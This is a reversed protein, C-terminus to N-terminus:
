RVKRDEREGGKGGRDLHRVHAHHNLADTGTTEGGEFAEDHATEVDDRDGVVSGDEGEVRSLSGAGPTSLGTPDLLVVVCAVVVGDGFAIVVVVDDDGVVVSTKPKM